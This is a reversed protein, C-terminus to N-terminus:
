QQPVTAPRQALTVTVTKHNKARVYELGVSDGPKKDAIASIVDDMSGVAIGDIKTIVDGGLAVNSGNLTAQDSGGHIGAQAPAVRPHRGVRCAM